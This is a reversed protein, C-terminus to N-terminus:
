ISSVKQLPPKNNALSAHKIDERKNTQLKHAWQRSLGYPDFKHLFLLNSANTIARATDLTIKPFVGLSGELKRNQKKYRFYWFKEGEPTVVLSLGGGDNYETLDPLPKISKVFENTLKM